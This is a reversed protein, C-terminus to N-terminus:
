FLEKRFIIHLITPSFVIGLKNLEYLQVKLRLGIFNYLPAILTPLFTLFTCIMLCYMDKQVEHPSKLKVRQKWFLPHLGNEQANMFHRLNTYGPYSAHSPFSSLMANTPGKALVLKQPASQQTVLMQLWLLWGYSNDPFWEYHSINADLQNFM